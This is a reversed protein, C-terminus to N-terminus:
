KEAPTLRSKAFSFGFTSGKGEQSKFTIAGGQAVIVKKAMFLGLGTGDPRATKANDARYFKSFLHHQEAKPVGIGTDVVTFEISQPKEITNITITGGSPTYYIANDIFNMIVQRLKMEDLMYSPFHEPRHYILELNRGKATEILQKVEEATVQAINCPIPEIVFKGTRLRSVNLLDSILYVMRQASVFSQTLLKRQSNTLPGADGELVMSVYGKVSTLPTRLQHSAMSIFDDKTEDLRRLKENSNRLKRTADDVRQQLTESFREIEEFRLANQIAIILENALTEIVNIDQATYINGSKKAGLVIHGFSTRKDADDTALQILIAINHKSLVKRLAADEHGLDDTVVVKSRIHPSLKHIKEIDSRSFVNAPSAVVHEAHNTGDRIAVLCFQAKLYEVIVESSTHLLRDLEITSVLVQNFNDFLEQTDYADQYFLRNSLKDFILKLRQFALSAIGTAISFLIGAEVPFDVHFIYQALGFFLFGYGLSLVIITGAYALSRAIILKIDFLRHKIIAYGILCVFFAGYVPSLIVLSTNNLIVPMVVGTAPALFFMPLIGILMYIYQLRQVGHTHDVRHLLVSCSVALFGVMHALYLVIGFAPIPVPNDTGKLGSFVLPTFDLIAVMVTAYIGARQLRSLGPRTKNIYVVLYYLCAIAITTFFIVSRIYFLRDLTRLSFFNAISFMILSITLLGYVRNVIQRPNRAYVFVGTAFSVMVCIVLIVVDIM